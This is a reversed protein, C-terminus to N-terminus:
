NNQNKQITKIEQNLKYFERFLADKENSFQNLQTIQVRRLSDVTQTMLENCKILELNIEKKETQVKDYQKWLFGVVGILSTLFFIVLNRRMKTSIGMLDFWNKSETIESM